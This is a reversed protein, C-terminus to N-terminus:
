AILSDCHCESTFRRKINNKVAIPVGFSVLFIFITLRVFKLKQFSGCSLIECYIFAYLM